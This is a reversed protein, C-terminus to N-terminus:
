SESVVYKVSTFCSLQGLSIM